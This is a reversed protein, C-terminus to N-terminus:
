DGPQGALSAAQDRRSVRCTVRLISVLRSLAKIAMDPGDAPDIHFESLCRNRFAVWRAAQTQEFREPANLWQLLDRIPDAVSLRDFDDADLRKGALTKVDADALLPLARGIAEETRRDQAIELGLGEASMLFALVTWDRGNSQHWM